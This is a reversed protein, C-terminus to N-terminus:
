YIRICFEDVFIEAVHEYINWREVRLYDELMQTSTTVGINGYLHAEHQVVENLNRDSSGNSTLDSSNFANSAHDTNGDSSSVAGSTKDASNRGDEVANNASVGSGVGSSTGEEKEKPQYTSADYASVKRETDNSSGTSTDSLSNSNSEKHDSGSETETGNTVSNNVDHSAGSESSASNNIDRRNQTVNEVSGRIDKYVEHRDYNHLPNFEEALGQVWKEFTRYHKDSWNSIMFKLFELNPYLIEFEGCQRLIEPVLIDKNIGAPLSIDDFLTPDYNYMGIMTLKSSSM